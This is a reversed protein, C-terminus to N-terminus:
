KMNPTVTVGNVGSVCKEQTVYVKRIQLLVPGFQHIIFKTASRYAHSSAPLPVHGAGVLLSLSTLPNADASVSVSTSTATTSATFSTSATSGAAALSCVMFRILSPSQVCM